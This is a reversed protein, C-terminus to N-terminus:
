DIEIKGSGKLNYGDDAAKYFYLYYKSSDKTAETSINIYCKDGISKFTDLKQTAIWFISVFAFM